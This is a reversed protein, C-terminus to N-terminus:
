GWLRLELSRDAGTEALGVVIALLPTTDFGQQSVSVQVLDGLQRDFRTRKIVARVLRRRVKDRAIKAQAVALADAEADFLTLLEAETALPNATQVALDEEPEIFSRESSYLDKMDEGIAALSDKSQTQWRRQYGARVRFVPQPAATEAAEITDVDTLTVAPVGTPDMWTGLRLLGQRSPAIWGDAASALEVVISEVTRPSTGTWFGVAGKHPFRQFSSGDIDDLTFPGGRTTVVREILDATSSVYGGTDDGEADISILGAPTDNLRLLSLALHTVYDVGPAFVYTEDTINAFSEDAGATLPVGSDRAELLSKSSSDSWQYILLTPNVTVAPVNRVLGLAVPKNFGKVSEDGDVTNPDTAFDGAYTATQFPTRLSALLDRVILEIRDRSSVVGEVLGKSILGWDEFQLTLEDVRGPDVTGGVRIEIERGEFSRELWSDLAGDDNAIVVAAISASGRSSRVETPVPIESDFDYPTLLRPQLLTNPPTDAGDTQFPKSALRLVEDPGSPNLPTTIAAFILLSRRDRLLKQFPDETAQSVADGGWTTQGHTFEGWAGTATAAM